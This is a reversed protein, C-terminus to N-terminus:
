ASSNIAYIARRARRARSDTRDCVSLWVCVWDVCLRLRRFYLCSIIYSVVRLLLSIRLVSYPYPTCFVSYPIRSVPYPSSASNLALRTLAPHTLPSLPKTDRPPNTTQQVTPWNLFCKDHPIMMTPWFESSPFYSSSLISWSGDHASVTLIIINIQIDFVLLDSLRIPCWFYSARQTSNSAALRRHYRTLPLHRPWLASVDLILM